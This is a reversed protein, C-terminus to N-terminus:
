IRAPQWLWEGIRRWLQRKVGKRLGKEEKPTRLLIQKRALLPALGGLDAVFLNAKQLCWRWIMMWRGLIMKKSRNPPPTRTKM